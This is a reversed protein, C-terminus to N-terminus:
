DTTLKVPKRLRSLPVRMSCAWERLEGTDATARWFRETLDAPVPHLYDWLYEPVKSAAIATAVSLPLGDNGYGGSITFKAVGSPTKLTATGTMFNGLQTLKVTRILVRLEPRSVEGLLVSFAQQFLLLFPGSHWQGGEKDCGGSGGIFM